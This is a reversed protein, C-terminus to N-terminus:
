RRARPPPAPCNPYAPPLRGDTPADRDDNRVKLYEIIAMRDEHSLYPGIRGDKPGEHDPAKVYERSFEHGTNHNGDKTTDFLWFGSEPQALGLKVPDFERSGVRFTKPREDVPSLLDYVTPVSGNHLFPPTAWIGALPRPKYANLVQPFDLAAFGDYEVQQEPTLGAEAYAKERILTGVYSLAAGAAVSRPDLNNLTTVATTDLAGIESQLSAIAKATEDTQPLARLRAIEGNYYATWRVKKVAFAESAIRKLDSATLGTSSLDVKANVFNEATNPDTGIDQTCITRVIWEPDSATKRPANRLKLAPPANFPGHCKVCNDNFLRKGREAKVQDIAGFVEEPWTPPQLKRLALEITHLNELLMSARFRESAPLPGGYRNVLSYKAGTGMSEGINRAMPQSVSANYQVWDFKWINWVPPYNVPANGIAYNASDLHAAFVTNAIRALADTRGYGEETPVLGYWKEAFGMAGLQRLVDLMQVRLPWKGRPYGDGLVKRAFRNFKLPNALTATMSSVMTPVFHGFNADTFAHLASGGDIRVVSTHGQRTINLQGTHCAACTIDLMEENLERDFHKSFGVPLGDPNRDTPRDVIFGYRRLVAPDAFRQRGIPMELNAFWSYRMDKVGAGQPTYYFTQRAEAELAAGWGQNVFIPDASPESPLMARDTTTYYMTAVGLAGVALLLAAIVTLTTRFITRLTINGIRVRAARLRGVLGPAPVPTVVAVPSSAGRLRANRSAAEAAWRARNISGIPRSGPIAHETVDIYMGQCEADSLMSNAVLTLRGVVHFPSQSEPWEVSANEVWYSPEQTKGDATMREADLLQLGIAFSAMQRDEALHRALEDRLVNQGKGIPRGPNDASAAASYKVADADGFSFPVNSWYRTQQYPKLPGRQQRIGRAATAFFGGLDRFSLSVLAKLKAWASGASSVKMFSAFAHADNIPFTPANNMSFDVRTGDPGEVSFSMARVDRKSDARFTSAANAFRVTAPYVGPRAFLGRALRAALAPDHTVGPLDFVEFTARVYVGKTHTGRGLPRKQEAAFRAQVTLIDRVIGAIDADETPWKREFTVPSPVM